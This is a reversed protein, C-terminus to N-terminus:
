AASAASPLVLRFLEQYSPDALLLDDLESLTVWRIEDHEETAKNVPTGTWATLIWVGMRYGDGELLRFPPDIPAVIEVGLEERLERALAEGQTEEGVHGGPIDWVNPYWERDMRRHALLIRGQSVLLAGVCSKM